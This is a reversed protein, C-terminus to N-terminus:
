FFDKLGINLGECIRILTLLKPNKSKKLLINEVTSQTLNSIKALQNISINYDRCIELIRNCIYESLIDIEKKETM